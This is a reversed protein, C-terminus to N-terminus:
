GPLPAASSFSSLRWSFIISQLDVSARKLCRAETSKNGGQQCFDSKSLGVPGLQQRQLVRM